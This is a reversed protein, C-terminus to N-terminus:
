AGTNERESRPLVRSRAAHVLGSLTNSRRPQPGLGVHTDGMAKDAQLARDAAELLQLMSDGRKWQAVGASATLELGTAQGVADTVGRRMRLAARRADSLSTEPMVIVFEDGGFRGVCDFGRASEILAEGASALVRNGMVHGHEDNVAKFHDIDLFCCSLEHGQRTSRQVESKLMELVREYRLCGTLQDAGTSRLVQAVADGRESMSLGALRAHAEAAWTLEDRGLHSPREWGAYIAGLPGVPGEIRCAIAHWHDGTAGGDRWGSAEELSVGGKGLAQGLFSGRTWPVTAHRAAHGAASLLAVKGHEDRGVIIGSDAEVADVLCRLVVDLSTQTKDPLGQTRAGTFPMRKGLTLPETRL